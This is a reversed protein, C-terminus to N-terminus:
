PSHSKHIHCNSSLYDLCKRGQIPTLFTIVVNVPAQWQVSCLTLEIWTMSECFWEKFDMKINGEGLERLHDGKEDRSYMNCTSGMVDTVQDGQYYITFFILSSRMTCNERTEQTVERRKPWFIRRAGEIHLNWLTRVVTYLV